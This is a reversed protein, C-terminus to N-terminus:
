GLNGIAALLSHMGRSSLALCEPLHQSVCGKPLLSGIATPQSGLSAKILIYLCTVKILVGTEVTWTSPM